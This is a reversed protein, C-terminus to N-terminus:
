GEKYTPGNLLRVRMGGMGEIHMNFGGLLGAPKITVKPNEVMAGNFYKSFDAVAWRQGNDLLFVTNQSWGDIRGVIHAELKSYEIKTGPAIM